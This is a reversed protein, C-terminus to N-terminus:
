VDLLLSRLRFELCVEEETGDGKVVVYKWKGREKFEELVETVTPDYFFKPYMQADIVPKLRIEIKSQKTIAQDYMDSNEGTVLLQDHLGASPSNRPDVGNEVVVVEDEEYDSNALADLANRSKRGPRKTGLRELEHEREDQPAFADLTNKAQRSLRHAGFTGLEDEDEPTSDMEADSGFEMKNVVTTFHPLARHIKM